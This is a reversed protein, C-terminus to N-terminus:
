SITIGFIQLMWEIIRELLTQHRLPMSVPLPDSWESEDGNIDKAKVKVEYNGRANWSHSVTVDEGSEYPGLWDSQTGDGWDWLYYIQDEQPDVTVSTYTYEEGSDGSSPGSPKAPKSPANSLESLEALTAVSLKTSKVTYPMNMHEITDQPSHYYSNFHYEAYFIANYGAEWFYYHDSGWSYGSPIVELEIYEYYQESIDSTFATIWTSYEDEYVRIKSADDDTEAFGIMDVNLVAIINDDSANAEEVYFYSGYLGQEEGSFTVFHVTHNFVYQSMVQAAAMVAATGSGDDDAGPSDPVSDYHACIVYIEDSTEDFGHITAEVSSGYLEDMSWNYYRVDLGMGKFENYIYKGAEDCAATATVRPGFATLNELYGLMMSEDIQQILSVVDENYGRQTVERYVKDTRTIHNGKLDLYDEKMCGPLPPNADNVITPSSSALLGTMPLVSSVMLVCVMSCITLKKM